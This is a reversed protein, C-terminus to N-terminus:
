VLDVGLLEHVGFELANVAYHAVVVVLLSGTLIYGAALAFGLLGTVVVGVRGQAGHGLAFALSAVVALLWPSVGIGAADPVGILAARFLLEEALAILPLVLAFLVLWGRGTTPALLQRVSEDYTAGVADAVATSSENAVWLAIGFALGVAVGLGGAGLPDAVVGFASAPISFYWGAAVVVVAVLGQTFAVNALLVRPSLEMRETSGPEAAPSDEASAEGARESEGVVRESLEDVATADNANEGRDNADGVAPESTGDLASESTRRVTDSTEDPTVASQSAAPQSAQERLLQQSQRALVLLVATLAAVVALFGGWQPV